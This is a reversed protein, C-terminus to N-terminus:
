IETCVMSKCLELNWTSSQWFNDLFRRMDRVSRLGREWNLPLFCRVQRRVDVLLNQKEQLFKSYRMRGQKWCWCTDILKWDGKVTPFHHWQWVRSAWILGFGIYDKFNQKQYFFLVVVVRVPDVMYCAVTTSIWEWNAKGLQIITKKDLETEINMSVILVLIFHLDQLPQNKGQPLAHYLYVNGLPLLFLLSHIIM